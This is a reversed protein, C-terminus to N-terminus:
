LYGKQFLVNSVFKLSLRILSLSYSLNFITFEKRHGAVYPFLSTLLNDQPYGLYVNHNILQELSFDLIAYNNNKFYSGKSIKDLFDLSARNKNKKVLSAKPKLTKISVKPKLAKIPVKVKLTKRQVKKKLM